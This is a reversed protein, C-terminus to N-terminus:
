QLSSLSARNYIEFNFKLLDGIFPFIPIRSRIM